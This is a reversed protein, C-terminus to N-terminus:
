IQWYLKHKCLIKIQNGQLDSFTVLYRKQSYLLLHFNTELYNQGKITIYKM